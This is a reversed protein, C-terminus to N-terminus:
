MISEYKMKLEALQQREQAEQEQIRKERDAKIKAEAAEKEIRKKEEIKASYALNELAQQKLFDPNEYVLKYETSPPFEEFWHDDEIDELYLPPLSSDRDKDEVRIGGQSQYSLRIGLEDALDFLKILKIATPHNDKLRLRKAPSKM